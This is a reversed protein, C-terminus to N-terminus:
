QLTLSNQVGKPKLQQIASVLNGAKATPVEGQLTVMSDAVVAEVAPYKELVSDVSERLQEDTGIIVPGIAINNVVDKVAYVGKVTSEVISKAKDTPCVGNLTVIGNAVTFRVGSFAKEKKAKVVLDAKVIEDKRQRSECSILLLLVFSFLGLGTVYKLIRVRM